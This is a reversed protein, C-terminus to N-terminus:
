RKRIALLVSQRVAPVGCVVVGTRRKAEAPLRAAVSEVSNNLARVAVAAAVPVHALSPVALPVRRIRCDPLEPPNKAKEPLAKKV